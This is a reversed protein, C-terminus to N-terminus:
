ASWVFKINDNPASHSYDDVYVLLDVCSLYFGLDDACIFQGVHILPLDGDEPLRWYLHM